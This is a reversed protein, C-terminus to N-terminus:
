LDVNEYYDEMDYEDIIKKLCDKTSLIELDCARNLDLKLIKDVLDKIQEAKIIRKINTKTSSYGGAITAASQSQLQSQSTSPSPSQLSVTQIDKDYEILSGKARYHSEILEKLKIKTSKIPQENLNDNLNFHHNDKFRNYEDVNMDLIKAIRRQKADEESDTSIEEIIDIDDYIELPQLKQLPEDTEFVKEIMEIDEILIKNDFSDGIKKIFEDFQFHLNKKRKMIGICPKTKIKIPFLSQYQIGISSFCDVFELVDHTQQLMKMELSYKSKPEILLHTFAHFEPNGSKLHEDKSYRNSLFSLTFLVITIM